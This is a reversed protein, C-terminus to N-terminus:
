ITADLQFPPFMSRGLVIEHGLRFSNRQVKGGRKLPNGRFRSGM